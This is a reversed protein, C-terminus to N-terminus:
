LGAFSEELSADETKVAVNKRPADNVTFESVEHKAGKEWKFPPEVIVGNRSYKTIFNKIPSWSKVTNPIESEFKRYLIDGLQIGHLCYMSFASDAKVGVRKETGDKLRLTFVKQAPFEVDGNPLLKEPSTTIEVVEGAIKDGVNAFKFFSASEFQDEYSRSEDM